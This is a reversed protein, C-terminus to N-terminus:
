SELRRSDENAGGTHAHGAEGCVSLSHGGVEAPPFPPWGRELGGAESDDAVGVVTGWIRGPLELGM